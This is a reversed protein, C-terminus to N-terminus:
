ELEGEQLSYFQEVFEIYEEKSAFVPKYNAKLSKALKADDKLLRYATLAFIKATQVYAEDEDEIDFNSAHLGDGTAGGTNFTIVPKLHEVDGLDTSGGVHMEKPVRIAQEGNEAAIASVVDYIEDPVEQPIEPLYGPMTEIKYGAGLAYAGAIFSRDTKKSANKFAELTRGRVLTEIVAEEPVVNVLDGGATMIPHVRVNDKEYFTDKNYALAQLGLNAAYLANIGEEKAAAAHAARGKITIVKSVFGNCSGNGVRIGDMSIHHAVCSDVDDFAGIRILECKGGGYRIKGKAVLTNKFEIEGYEEAPTTFFIVQGGLSKSIEKNSLAIAAGVLGALQAHHGCCHAGKTEEWAYKHNPIRLADLEAILALSYNERKDENIYAKTGTIALSTDVHESLKSIFENFKQSTRFEKYGLEAHHYIDRGFEIITDRNSDIISIINEETSDFVKNSMTKNEILLRGFRCIYTDKTQKGVIGRPFTLHIIFRM